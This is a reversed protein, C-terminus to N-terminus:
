VANEHKRAQRRRDQLKLEEGYWQWMFWSWLWGGAFGSVFSIFLFSAYARETYAFFGSLAFAFLFANRWFFRRKIALLREATLPPPEPAPRRRQRWLAFLTAGAIYAAALGLGAVVAWLFASRPLTAVYYVGFAAIALLWPGSHLLLPALVLGTPGRHDAPASPKLFQLLGVAWSLVRSVVLLGGFFSAVGLTAVPLDM